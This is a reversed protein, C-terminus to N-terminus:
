EPRQRSRRRGLPEHFRAPDEIYSVVLSGFGIIMVGIWTIPSARGTVATLVLVALGVIALAIRASKIWAM